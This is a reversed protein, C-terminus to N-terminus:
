APRRWVSKRPQWGSIEVPELQDREVHYLGGVDLDVLVPAEPHSVAWMVTGEEGLREAIEAPYRNLHLLRVRQGKQLPKVVPNSQSDNVWHPDIVPEGPRPEGNGMQQGAVERLRDREALLESVDQRYLVQWPEGGGDIKSLQIRRRMREIATTKVDSM